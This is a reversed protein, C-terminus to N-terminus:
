EMTNTKMNSAPRFEGKVPPFLVTTFREGEIDLANYKDEEDVLARLLSDEKNTKVIELEVQNTELSSTNENIEEFSM